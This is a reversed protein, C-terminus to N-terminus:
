PLALTSTATGAPVSFDHPIYQEPPTPRMDAPLTNDQLGSHLRCLKRTPAGVGSVALRLTEPKTTMYAAAHSRAALSASQPHPYPTPRQPTGALYPLAQHNAQAHPVPIHVPTELLCCACIFLICAHPQPVMCLRAQNPRHQWRHVIGVCSGMGSCAAVLQRAHTACPMPKQRCLVGLTSHSFGPQSFITSVVRICPTQTTLGVPLMCKCTAHPQVTSHLSKFYGHGTCGHCAAIVAAM